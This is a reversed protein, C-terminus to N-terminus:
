AAEQILGQDYVSIEELREFLPELNYKAFKDVSPNYVKKLLDLKELNKSIKQIQRESCGMRTALDKKSAFPMKGTWKYSLLHIIFMMESSNIGTPEGKQYNVLRHYNKLLALSVATFQSVLNAHGNYIVEISHPQKSHKSM